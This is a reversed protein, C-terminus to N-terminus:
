HFDLEGIAAKGHGGTIANPELRIYRTGLARGFYHTRPSPDNILNGFGFNEVLTWTRGDESIHISGKEIMGKSFDLPPTYTFATLVHSSGLDIALGHVAGRGKSLWYTGPDEDLASEGPYDWHAGDGQLVKWAGKPFGLLKEALPGKEGDHFAVAKLTGSSVEFPGTYLPSSKLPESGDLSYRIELGGGLNKAIDQGHPKWDFPHVKPRIAVLGDPQRALTLQPPRPRYYHASITALVPTARSALINVRFRDSRTPPFRLIRKHGINSAQAVTQWQGDIWAELEHAEVREGDSRIAEQLLLRNITIPRQTLIEISNDGVM